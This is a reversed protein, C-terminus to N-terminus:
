AAAEQFPSPDLDPNVFWEVAHGTAEAIATLLEIGPRHEGRELLILHQRSSRGMRAVLTDHSLRVPEAEGEIVAERRAKRIRASVVKLDAQRLERELDVTEM